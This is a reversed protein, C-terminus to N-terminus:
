MLHIMVGMIIESIEFLKAKNRYSPKCGDMYVCVTFIFHRVMFHYISYYSKETLGIM